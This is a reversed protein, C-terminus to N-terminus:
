PARGGAQASSPAPVPWPVSSRVRAAPLALWAARCMSPDPFAQSLGWWPAQLLRATALARIATPLAKAGACAPAWRSPGAYRGPLFLCCVRAYAYRRGLARQPGHRGQDLAPGAMFSQGRLWDKFLAMSLRSDYRGAWCRAGAVPVCAGGPRREDVSADVGRRTLCRAPMCPSMRRWGSLVCRVDQQSVNRNCFVWRM